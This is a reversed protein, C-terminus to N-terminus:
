LPSDPDNLLAFQHVDLELAYTETRSGDAHHETTHTLWLTAADGLLAAVRGLRRPAVYRTIKEVPGLPPGLPSM